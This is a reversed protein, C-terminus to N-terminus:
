APSRKRARSKAWRIQRSRIWRALEPSSPKPVLRRWSWPPDEGFKEKYTFYAWGDSHGRERAHWLLQQYTERKHQPTPGTPVATSGLEVLVGDITTVNAAPRPRDIGCSLCVQQGPVLPFGCSSCSVEKAARNKRKSAQRSESSLEPVEFDVPLGHRHCNGAHDLIVCNAKGEARRLGRGKQQMDLAPSQTPRALILCSADPVNFGIALVGVSSLVRIERAKFGEILDRRQTEPTRDDIHAAAIGEALFDEVIARSHAKNVAFCLTQRDEGHVKWTHVLDGVLEPRNMVEGLQRENFDYGHATRGCKVGALLKAMQREDPSFAHASVLFGKETLERVSPGRVLHSFYKGLDERLPTASLGIISVRNWDKMLKIHAKYLIHVEDILVLDIWLPASRAHITQISAVVVDDHPGYNTNDGQLVGVRLGLAAFHQVAQIVLERLHVVFLVRKGRAAARRALEGAVVTKGAGTPLCLIQRKHGQQLGARLDGIAKQQHPYLEIM